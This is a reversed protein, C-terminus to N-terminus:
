GCGGSSKRGSHAKTLTDQFPRRVKLLRTLRKPSESLTLAEARLRGEHGYAKAPEGFRNKIKM